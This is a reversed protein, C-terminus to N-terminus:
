DILGYKRLADESEDPKHSGKAMSVFQQKAQEDTLPQGKGHLSEAQGYSWHLRNGDHAYGVQAAALADVSSCATM